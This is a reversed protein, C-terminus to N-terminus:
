EGEDEERLVDAMTKNFDRYTYEPVVFVRNELLPLNEALWPEPDLLKVDDAEDTESGTAIEPLDAPEERSEAPKRYSANFKLLYRGGEEEEMASAEVILGTRSEMRFRHTSDRDFPPADDASLVDDFRVYTLALALEDGIQAYVLDRGEPVDQILLENTEADRQLVLEDGQPSTFVSREVDDESIKLAFGRLWETPDVTVDIRKDILWTQDQDPRRVFLGARGSATNGLLVAFDGEDIQIEVASETDLGLRSHNEAIATKREVVEAEALQTLLEDLTDFEIPFDKEVLKWGGANEERQLTVSGDQTKLYVKTIENLKEQLGPLVPQGIDTDEATNDTSVFLIGAVLALVVLALTLLLNRKM